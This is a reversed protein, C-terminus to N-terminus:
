GHDWIERSIETHSEKILDKSINRAESEQITAM